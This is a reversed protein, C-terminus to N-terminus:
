VSPEDEVGLLEKLETKSFYMFPEVNFDVNFDVNYDTHPHVMTITVEEPIDDYYIGQLQELILERVEPKDSKTLEFEIVGYGFNGDINAGYNREKYM